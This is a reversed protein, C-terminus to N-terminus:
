YVFRGCWVCLGEVLKLREGRLLVRGLLVLIADVEGVFCAVCDSVLGGRLLGEDDGGEGGGGREEMEVVTSCPDNNIVFGLDNLEQSINFDKENYHTRNDGCVGGNQVLFDIPVSLRTWNVKM